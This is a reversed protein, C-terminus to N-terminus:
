STRHFGRAWAGLVLFLLFAVMWRDEPVHIAWGLLVAVALVLIATRFRSGVRGPDGTTGTM